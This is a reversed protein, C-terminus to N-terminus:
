KTMETAYRGIMRLHFITTANTKYKTISVISVNKIRLIVLTKIVFVFTSKTSKITLPLKTMPYPTTTIEMMM